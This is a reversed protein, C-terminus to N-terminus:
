WEESCQRRMADPTIVNWFNVWIRLSEIICLDEKANSKIRVSMGNLMLNRQVQKPWTALRKEPTFLTRESDPIKGFELLIPVFTDGAWCSAVNVEMQNHHFPKMNYPRRKAVTFCLLSHGPRQLNKVKTDIVSNWNKNRKRKPRFISIAHEISYSLMRESLVRLVKDAGRKM